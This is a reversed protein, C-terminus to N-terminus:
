GEPLLLQMLDIETESARRAIMVREVAHDGGSRTWQVMAACFTGWRLTGLVEWFRLADRNVTGGSEAEYAAYLSERTGIGGVPKDIVGFRWSNICLWGLDELPDGRHALEWDLVARVGEPGFIFNGNRFDGHVLRPPGSPAPINDELWRLAMAFVPRPYQSRQYRRSLQEVEQEPTALHLNLGTTDIRHIRALISGAQQAFRERASAYIADRIIRRALTEGEIRDMIFGRGLQDAPTLVYRVTPVPVGALAALRMLQAETEIEISPDDARITRASRRLIFADRSADRPVDFSWTEKSAGGSL